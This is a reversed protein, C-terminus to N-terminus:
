ARLLSALIGTHEGQQMCTAAVVAIVCQALPGAVPGQGLGQSVQVKFSPGGLGEEVSIGLAALDDEGGDLRLPTAGLEGWTM